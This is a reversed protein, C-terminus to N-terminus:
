DTWVRTRQLRNSVGNFRLTVGPGCSVEGFEHQVVEDRPQPVGDPPHKLRHEGRHRLELASLHNREM